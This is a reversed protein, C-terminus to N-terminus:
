YRCRCYYDVLLFLLSFTGGGAITVDLMMRSQSRSDCVVKTSDLLQDIQNQTFGLRDLLKLAELSGKSAAHVVIEFSKLRIEECHLDPDVLISLLLLAAQEAVKSSGFVLADHLSAFSGDDLLNYRYIQSRLDMVDCVSIGQKELLARFFSRGASIADSLDKPSLPSGFFEGGDAGNVLETDGLQAGSSLADVKAMDTGTAPPLKTGYDFNCDEQVSGASFLRAFVRKMRPPLSINTVAPSPDIPKLRRFIFPTPM